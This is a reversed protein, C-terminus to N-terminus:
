ATSRANSSKGSILDIIDRAAFLRPNTSGEIETLIGHRVLIDVNKKAAPYTVQRDAQIAPISTVPQEFLSDVVSLLNASMRTRQLRARYERQLSFIQDTLHITQRAADRMATLYFTIWGEWDGKSSVAYMRDIYEDKREEFIPSLYLLPQVLKKKMFLHLIILMRGVRGNGDAFPHITEFQYHILASNILTDLDNEEDHIYAELAELCAMGERPPPPIFRAEEIHGSGGIFNQFQKFEGPRVNAGRSRGVNRLMSRHADRITRLSLPVTALSDIAETLASMYNLVERTDPTTLSTENAEAILLEDVTTYTGEMSSSSVVERRQLPRILLYPNAITRGIGNLEGIADLAESWPKILKQLNINSPPLPNPVFARQGHDTPVLAGSPSGLFDGYQV